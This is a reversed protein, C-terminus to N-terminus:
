LVENMSGTRYGQLDVTIYHYGLEKFSKIINDRIGPDSLHAIQASPVEIRALSDHHRVRLQDFGLEYLLAEARAVRHLKEPTIHIGYPFRSALCAMSPKNSTPLNLQQSLQRIESKTLGAEKLPSRVGLEQLARLGPRYDDTDGAHTGDVVVNMKHEEAIRLVTSFIAKKCHYCRDPPNQWVDPLELAKSDVTILSVNMSEALATADTYETSIYMDSRATVAIVHDNLVEKAVKLLFTSDVGGSFAVVVSEMSKLISRLHELKTQM